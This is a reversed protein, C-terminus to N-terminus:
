TQKCENVHFLGAMVDYYQLRFGVHRVGGVGVM